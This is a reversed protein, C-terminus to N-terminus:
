EDEEIVQIELFDCDIHDYFNDQRFRTKDHKRFEEINLDLWIPRSLDFEECVKELTAFVKKTRTLDSEDCVVIDKILHNEKWIKAWMRFM